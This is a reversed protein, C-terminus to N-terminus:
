TLAIVGAVAGVTAVGFGAGAALGELFDRTTGPAVVDEMLEFKLDIEKSNINEM